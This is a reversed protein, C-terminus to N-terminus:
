ACLSRPVVIGPLLKTVRCWTSGHRQVTDRARVVRPPKDTTRKVAYVHKGKERIDTLAASNPECRASVLRTEPM